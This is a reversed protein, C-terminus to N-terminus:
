PAITVRCIATPGGLTERMVELMQTRFDGQRQLEDIRSNLRAIEALAEAVQRQHACNQAELDAICVDRAALRARLDLIQDRQTAIDQDRELVKQDAGRRLDDNNKAVQAIISQTLQEGVKGLALKVSEPLAHVLQETQKQAREKLLRTVEADLCMVNIGRSVNCHEVMAAKVNEGDPTDGDREVVDIGIHIQAETYLPPHGTKKKTM